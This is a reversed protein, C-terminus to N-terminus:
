GRIKRPILLTPGQGESQSKPTGGGPKVMVAKSKMTGAARLRSTKGTKAVALPSVRPQALLNVLLDLCNLERLVAILVQITGKGKELKQITPTSVGVAEALDDQKIDKRLRRERIADGLQAAIAEDSLRQIRM